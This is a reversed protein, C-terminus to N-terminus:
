QGQGPLPSFHGAKGPAPSSTILGRSSALMNTVLPQQASALTGSYAQSPTPSDSYLTIKAGLRLQDITLEALAYKSLLSDYDKQLQHVLETAQKRQSSEQNLKAKLEGKSRDSTVSQAESQVDESDDITLSTIEALSMHTPKVPGPRSSINTTSKSKLKFNQDATMNPKPLIRKPQKEGKESGSQDFFSEQSRAKGLAKQSNPRHKQPNVPSQPVIDSAVSLQSGSSDHRKRPHRDSPSDSGPRRISRQKDSKVSDPTIARKEQQQKKGKKATREKNVPTGARGSTNSSSREKPRNRAVPPSMCVTRNSLLPIKSPTSPRIIEAAKFLEEVEDKQSDDFEISEADDAVLPIDQADVSPFKTRDRHSENYLDLAEEPSVEPFSRSSVTRDTRDSRARSAPRSTDLNDEEVSKEREYFTKKGLDLDEQSLFHESNLQFSQGTLYSDNPETRTLYPALPDAEAQGAAKLEAELSEFEVLSQRQLSLETGDVLVGLDKLQQYYEENFLDVHDSGTTQLDDTDQFRLTQNFGDSNRLGNFDQDDVSAYSADFTFDKSAELESINM